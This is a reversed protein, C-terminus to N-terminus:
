SNTEERGNEIPPIASKVADSANSPLWELLIFVSFKLDYVSVMGSNNGSINNM